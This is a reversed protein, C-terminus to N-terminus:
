GASALIHGAGSTIHLACSLCSCRTEVKSFGAAAVDKALQEADGLQNPNGKHQLSM